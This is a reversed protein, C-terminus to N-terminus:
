GLRVVEAPACDINTAKAPYELGNRIFYACLAELKRPGFRTIALLDDPGARYVAGVLKLGARHLALSGDKFGVVDTLEDLTYRLLLDPHFAPRIPVVANM